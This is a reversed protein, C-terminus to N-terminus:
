KLKTWHNLTHNPTKLVLKVFGQLDTDTKLLAQGEKLDVEGIKIYKDSGGTHFFNTHAILVEAQVSKESDVPNWTLLLQNAGVAYSRLNVADVPSMLSVGDLEYQVETPINVKLYDMLTVAIDTNAVRFDRAYRNLAKEPRNIVLWTNRESISQGGHHYSTFPTRGHDTTVIFLWEEGTQAERQKVSDYILGVIADTYTIANHFEPSNGYKHSIDDTVQLYVWSLDAPDKLLHKAADIAVEADIRKIYNSAKDHPYNITDVELGDFSYNFTLGRTESRGAGILKTRNDLWTSYIAIKGNPYSDKFLRFMTPYHYNVANLSNDYVNNKNAWTGTITSAYGNSSITPTQSLGGKEGGVYSEIFLGGDSQIRDLNPTSAKHINGVPIGDVIILIAKREQAVLPLSLFLSLLLSIIIQKM